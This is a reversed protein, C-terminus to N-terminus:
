LNGFNSINSEITVGEVKERAHFYHFAIGIISIISSIYVGMSQILGFIYQIFKFFVSQNVAAESSVSFVLGVLSTIYWPLMTITQVISAIFYLVVMLGIMGGMTAYGLKWAKRFAHAFSIDWEFIYVPFVLMLPILFIICVIFLPITLLLSWKSILIALLAMIAVILIYAFFMVVFLRLYKWANKVLLEKFDNLTVNQLRNERVAYTQMMAYIMGSLIASGILACFLLVGYNGLLSVLSNGFQGNTGAGLGASFSINMVSNMAFTQILCIPMMLYFSYKFLPKWNERIFAFVANLKESFSRQRYFEIRPQQYEM